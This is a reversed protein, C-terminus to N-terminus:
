QNKSYYITINATDRLFNIEEIEFRNIKLGTRNELDEILLKHNKPKILEIKEYLITKKFEYNSFRSKELIWTIFIIVLNAFVLEIYTIKNGSLTNIISVGIILFIYTMEKIPIQQTRYRIIGFIAFLGLAFGIKITINNLLFTLLFITVGLLIFTFLFDKRKSISYYLYKSIIFLVALNFTFRIILDLFIKNNYIELGLFKTNLIEFLIM